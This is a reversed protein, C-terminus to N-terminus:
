YCGLLPSKGVLRFISNDLETGVALFYMGPMTPINILWDPLGTDHGIDVLADHLMGFTHGAPVYDDIFKGLGKGPEVLGSNERGVVYKDSQPRFWDLGLSDIHDIPNGDVYNYLNAVGGVFLIPDKATWRGTESDYDRAGFRVLGTQRDYLGGAFGFPQFGPNTDQEVNGWADYDIRQLVAGSAVDVVLRPSGLHDSLIRYTQGDKIMYAPVNPKDAYVFRAAVNGGSDLEAIPHLLDQYLFGQVLEGDVKKGVRRNRGDILYEIDTGDPLVVRSLNGLVDYTYATSGATNTRTLLEGNATYVYTNSGDSLLRDQADYIGGSRNGNADYHYSAIQIGNKQAVELRGALDYAYDYTTIVGGITEIQQTIRGLVDRTYSVAYLAGDLTGSLRLEGQRPLSVADILPTALGAMRRSVNGGGDEYYIAGDGALALSRTSFPMAQMTGDQGRCFVSTELEIWCITGGDDVDLDLAPRPHTSARFLSVVTGDALIQDFYGRGTGVILGWSSSGLLIVTATVDDDRPLSVLLVTDRGTVRYLRTPGTGPNGAVYIQGDPGIEMDNVLELGAAALDAFPQESAGDYRTINMGKLLYVQGNGDVAVDSAATLWTPQRVEGSDAPILWVGSVDGNRGLFYVDGTSTVTLLQDVSYSSALAHREVTTTKQMALQHSGDYIEIMLDNIGLNSLPVEGNVAGGQTVTMAIGNVSVAGAGEVHGDILLTESTISGDSVALDLTAAGQANVATLEGFDNYNTVTTVSGLVTDTILGNRPDRSLTLAGAETLLGEDDYHYAIADSDVALDAIKLDRDYQRSVAGDIDGSWSEVIPLFGDYDYLLIEGGPATLESLRGASDYTYQYNGDPVSLNQLRGNRSDHIYEVAQGDPRLIRTPQRDLNYTYRTINSGAAVDPPTYVSDQDMATYSFVHSSGDPPVLGILNGNADYSMDIARGDPLTQRMVRGAADYEYRFQRGAADTLAALYGAQSGEAHYEFTTTRALAGEGQVLASLRGHADYTMAYKALGTARTEVPHSLGDLVTTKTRGAPGTSTWTRDAASYTQDFIKGNLTTTESWATLSLPDVPNSLQVTRAITAMSILGQPLSIGTNVLQPNLLGFRPDPGETTAAVTGDPMAITQTMAAFDSATVTGDTATNTQRRVGDDLYDVGFRSVRGEGSNMSVSYGDAASTRSLQWGGGAPDLDHRLRGDAEYTYESRNGNRDVFANLLGSTTYEMHWAHGAPDSVTRLYGSVDLGLETAQGFPAVISLPRGDGDRQIRTVDGETDLIAALRGSGDYQFEFRPIGTVADLTRLHRGESSFLFLERSDMSPILYEGGSMSAAAREIKRVRHNGTDVVYLDGDPALTVGQPFNLRALVAPGGDGDAGSSDGGAVTTIYGGPDVKRVRHNNQDAIYLTDDGALAIKAPFALSAQIAQEGDGGTGEVGNGAMTFIRGDIAVKRVRHNNRDAIYFSGDRAVTVATPYNLRADKAPGNDGSYGGSRNGAVIILRGDPTIQRILHNGSDAIYLEGGPGAALGTPTSLQMLTAAGESENFGPTGTGAVTSIMGSRDLRRIRHNLSDAIYLSGDPGFALGAPDHLQALAAPGGDGSFGAAGTGAVTTIVGNADVRRVRQYGRDAIYLAGDPGVVADAPAVLNAATAPEGDGTGSGSGGGAVTTIVHSVDQASESMGDGLWLTRSSPDYAHHIDLSWGGLEAQALLVPVNSLPRTWERSIRVPETSTAGIIPGAGDTLLRGFARGGQYPAVYIMRYLYDLMVRATASSMPRGYADNGDWVFTYQQNPAATFTRRFSRGAIQVTVEVRLLSGPIASGTVPIQLSNKLSYGPARKSQYNLRYRTGVVPIQEGLSQSQPQISCGSCADQEDDPPPMDKPPLPPNIADTPPGWPFNCDFPTFHSVPSRFLSTGAVYLVALQAREAETIGLAALQTADAPNGSGDVDLDALGGNIGLIAIVRGDDAPVWAAHGRDYWGVPVIEGVPFNRVNEVYFPVPRDFDVRTAAVAAAEDVSLEVAYTYASSPPLEGPMAAPGPSGVSYETARVALTRLSRTTGDPLTMTATTDGPFLLTARRPGLDDTVISGRAVQMTSGAALDIVTVQSDLPIMVVDPSWAYDQWPANLTRQVPLYGSKRYEVTVPGGGNVAIDFLGDARTSTRGYEPHDHVTVTVGSIPRGSRDTVVGRLVAAREAVIAGPTVFTQVPNAGTYLFRIGDAFSTIATPALPPAVAIPDPPLTGEPTDDRRNPDSGAATEVGDNFGDGDTDPQLPNSFFRHVEVGDALNDGDTDPNLPDTHHLNVEDGDILGDDDSDAVNPDTGLQREQADSLGDGDADPPVPITVSIQITDPDSDLRGDGVILQAVYVGALDPVFAPSATDEAQLSIDSGAPVSILSWRYNLADLDADSSESGDLTIPDGMFAEIDSGARAVPRSNQTTIVVHNPESILNGDSVLLELEYIGPRDVYFSPREVLPNDLVAISQGPRTVLMWQYDLADGDVDRSGTGDLLVTDGVLVTQDPGADSVPASNLTSIRVKDPLSDAHGDNVILQVVYEGPIDVTFEPVLGDAGTLIASSGAPVSKFSWRYTLVDGEADTSGSGNLTVTESVYATADPGAHAAPPTNRVVTKARYLRPKFSFPINGRPKRFIVVREHKEGPLLVRDGIPHFPVGETSTTDPWVVAVSPPSIGQLALYFPGSIPTHGSNTFTIVYTEYKNLRKFDTKVAKV